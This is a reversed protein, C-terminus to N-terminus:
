QQRRCGQALRHDAFDLDGDKGGDGWHLFRENWNAPLPLQVHYRIGPAIFGRVYCYSTAGAAMTRIEALHITLEPHNLLGACAQQAQNDQAICPAAAITIAALTAIRM